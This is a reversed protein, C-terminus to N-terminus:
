LQDIVETKIRELNDRRETPSDGLNWDPVIFEDFGVEAYAALQELLQDATGAISRAGLGGSRIEDAAAQDDTLFVLAQVSTRRTAPDVGAADCAAVFARHRDTAGAVTGWTNWEDAHRATIRMMRAGGTGVLLPLPSQVPKPDAPAEIITYCTGDFTTRDENLLSRIIQIAEEFRDVRQKPPELAIGYAKHENIQWGAGLGLVLRGNSLHDITSARNALVAPHHVSTPTVLSGIRVRDTAMALAPLMAWCEHTDGPNIEESGTNPMYHDAYWVGHFGNTDAWRATDIVEAVGLSMNPWVSFDM